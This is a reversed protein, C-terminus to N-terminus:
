LQDKEEALLNDPTFFIWDEKLGLGPLLFFAFSISCRICIGINIGIRIDTHIDTCIDTHIGGTINCIGFLMVTAEVLPM